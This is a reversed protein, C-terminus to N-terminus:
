TIEGSRSSRIGQLLLSRRSPYLLIHNSAGLYKFSPWGRPHLFFGMNSIRNLYRPSFITYIPAASPLDITLNPFLRKSSLKSTGLSLAVISIILALAASVQSIRLAINEWDTTTCQDYLSIAMKEQLSERTHLRKM